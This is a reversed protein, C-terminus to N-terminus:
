VTSKQILNRVIRSLGVYLTSGCEGVYTCIDRSIEISCGLSPSAWSNENDLESVLGTPLPDDSIFPTIM